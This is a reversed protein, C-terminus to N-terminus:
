REGQGMGACALMLPLITGAVGSQSQSAIQNHLAEWARAMRSAMADIPTDLIEAAEKYSMGDACILILMTRQHELLDALARRVTALTINCGVIAEGVNGTVERAADVGDGRGDQLSRNEDNSLNRMVRYMWAVIQTDTRFQARRSMARDYAAQVLEEADVTSRTLAMAFCRLRPLLALLASHLDLEIGDDGKAQRKANMSAGVAPRSNQKRYDQLHRVAAMFHKYKTMESGPTVYVFSVSPKQMPSVLAGGRCRSCEAPSPWRVLRWHLPRLGDYRLSVVQKNGNELGWLTAQTRNRAKLKRRLAKLHVKVTESSIALERAITKKSSGVVLLELIQAERASLGCTAKSGIPAEQTSHVGLAAAHSCPAFIRQGSMVLNLAHMLTDPSMDSLLCGDIETPCTQPLLGLSVLDGLIIVKVAPQDRHIARLMEEDDDLRGESYM